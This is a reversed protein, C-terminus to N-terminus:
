SFSPLQPCAWLQPQAAWSLLARALSDWSQELRTKGEGLVKVETAAALPAGAGRLGSPTPPSGERQTRSSEWAEASFELKALQWRWSPILKCEWPSSDVSLKEQEGLQQSFGHELAERTAWYYLIQRGICFVHTQGRIRSYEM